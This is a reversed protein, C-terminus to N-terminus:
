KRRKVIIKDSAKRKAVPLAPQFRRVYPRRRRGDPPRCPENRRRAGDPSHRPLAQPRGQRAQDLGLGQQRGLRRGRPLTRQLHPGRGLADQAAGHQRRAVDGPLRQRREERGVRGQGPRARNCPGHTGAPDPQAAPLQRGDGRGQTREHGEHRGEAGGARPHLEQRRRHVRHARPVREQDSRVRHGEGDGRRRVQQAQLRRHAHAAERRRRPPADHHPGPQQPGRDQPRGEDPAEGAEERHDGRVHRIRPLAHRM